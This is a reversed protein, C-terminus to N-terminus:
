FTSKFLAELNNEPPESLLSDAQLAPSRTLDRHYTSGRFFPITVWELLGAQLTGHVSSCITPAEGSPESPLSYAQLALFGPEIGPNPPDGPFPFPLGSQYEQRLFEM